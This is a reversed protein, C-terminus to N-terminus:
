YAERTAQSGPIKPDAKARSKVKPTEYICFVHDALEIMKELHPDMALSYLLITAERSTQKPLTSEKRYFSILARYGIHRQFCPPYLAM